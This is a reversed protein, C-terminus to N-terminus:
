TLSHVFLPFLVLRRGHLEMSFCDKDDQVSHHIEVTYSHGGKFLHMGLGGVGPHPGNQKEFYLGKERNFYPYPHGGEAKGLLGDWDGIKGLDDPMTFSIRLTYEANWVELPVTNQMAACHDDTQGEFLIVEGNGSLMSVQTVSGSFPESGGEYGCGVQDPANDYHYDYCWESSTEFKCTLWDPNGDSREMDFEGYCDSGGSASFTAGNATPHNQFVLEACQEPTEAHGAHVEHGYQGDGQEFKCWPM